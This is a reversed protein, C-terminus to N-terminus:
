KLKKLLREYDEATDVAYGPHSTDFEFVPDISLIHYQKPHQYFDYTVHEIQKPGPQEDLQKRLASTKVVETTTGKLCPKSYNNTVLYPQHKIWSKIATQMEEISFLPRDGCLRAFAELDYKEAALVARELVNKESGRFCDVGMSLALEELVDDEPTDTTAMVVKYGTQQARRIVHEVLPMGGFDLMAKGPLRSSNMRSFVIIGLSM